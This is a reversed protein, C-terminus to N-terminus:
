CSVAGLEDEAVFSVATTPTTEPAWTFTYRGEGDDVLISNQPPEGDISVTFNSSDTVMFKYINVEGVIM